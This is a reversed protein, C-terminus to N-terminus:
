VVRRTIEVKKNLKITNPLSLM